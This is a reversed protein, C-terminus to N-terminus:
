MPLSEPTLWRAAQVPRGLTTIKPGVSGTRQRGAPLVTSITCGGSSHPGQKSVAASFQAVASQRPRIVEPSTMSANGVPQGRATLHIISSFHFDFALELGEVPDVGDVVFEDAGLVGGAFHVAVHAAGGM